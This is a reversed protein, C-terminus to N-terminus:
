HEDTPEEREPGMPDQEYIPQGKYSGILKKEDGGPALLRCVEVCKAELDALGGNNDLIYQVSCDHQSITCNGRDVGDKQVYVVSEFYPTHADGNGFSRDQLAFIEKERRVGVVVVNESKVGALALDVLLCPDLDALYDGLARLGHRFKYTVEDDSIADPVFRTIRVIQRLVDGTEVVVCDKLHKAIFGAATSKGCLDGNGVVAIIM